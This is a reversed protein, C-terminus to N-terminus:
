IFETILVVGSTGDGGDAAGTGSSVAGAGGSGWLGASVGGVAGGGPGVSAGPTTNGLISAGGDGGTVLSTSGFILADGGSSGNSWFIPPSLVTGGGAGGDTELPSSTPGLTVGGDGGSQSILAGVSTTGGGTAPSGHTGAAGITIPQSAGIDSASFVGRAYGGGGGGSGATMNAGGGPNTADGGGGGGGVLEIVCFRMGATPTYTGSIEFIRQVCSTFALTSVFGNSDVTFDGSNFHSVGNSGITSSSTATSRQVQVTYTNAALSNTRIVNATTGSAVQGGTVTIQGASDPLVPDTGPATSADVNISDIAQGGGSLSITLTNTVPNGIVTVGNSGLLDINRSGDPGVAGGSNGTLTLIGSAAGSSLEEWTATSGTINVLGWYSMATTNIWTQGIPYQYDSSSPNDESVVIPGVARWQATVFGNSPIIGELYWIAKTVTNVWGTYIKYNPNYDQETPDRDQFIFAPIPSAGTAIGYAQQSNPFTM